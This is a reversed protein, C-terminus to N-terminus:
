SVSNSPSAALAVGFSSIFDSFVEAYSLTQQTNKRQLRWHITVVASCLKTFSRCTFSPTVAASIPRNLLKKITITEEITTM